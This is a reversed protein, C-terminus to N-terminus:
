AELVQLAADAEDFQHHGDGDKRNEHGESHRAEGSPHLVALDAGRRIRDLVAKLEGAAFGHPAVGGNPKLQRVSGVVAAYKRGGPPIPCHAQIVHRAGAGSRM